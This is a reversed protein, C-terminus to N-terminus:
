LLEAAPISARRRRAIWLGIGILLLGATAFVLPAAWQHHKDEDGFGYSFAFPFVYLFPFFAGAIDSWKAAFHSATQLVAWGGFVVWSSRRVREGLAFYVLGAIGILVWDFDGDHFFWLLGGGITLGAVVHLWFPYVRSGGSDAGAAIGLLALGFAITVIASWDGGNSILDTTFAWAATAIVLVLLPFRFIRLAVAAAVLALLELVLRWFDFGKFAADNSSLWGFWDLLAGAFTVFAAVSSLAFLGATIHHGRRKFALAIASLLAFVVVTWLVFGAKGHEGAQVTLFAGTSSLITLGGLYALFSASSWPVRVPVPVHHRRPRVPCRASM